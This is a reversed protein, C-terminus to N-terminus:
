FPYLGGATSTMEPNGEKGDSKEAKKGLVKTIIEGYSIHECFYTQDLSQKGSQVRVLASRM